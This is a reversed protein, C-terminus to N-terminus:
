NREPDPKPAHGLPMEATTFRYGCHRCRRRRRIRGGVAPRTYLVRLDQCGCRPCALGRGGPNRKEAQRAALSIKPKRKRRPPLPETM